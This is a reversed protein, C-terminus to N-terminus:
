IASSCPSTFFIDARIEVSMVFTSASWFELAGAMVEDM